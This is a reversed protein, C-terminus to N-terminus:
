LPPARTPLSLRDARRVNDFYATGAGSSRDSAFRPGNDAISDARFSQLWHCIACHSPPEHSSAARFHADHTSHDHVVLVPADPDDAAVHWSGSTGLVTLAILALALARCRKLAVM